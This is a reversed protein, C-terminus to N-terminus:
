LLLDRMEFSRPEDIETELGNEYKMMCTIGEREM